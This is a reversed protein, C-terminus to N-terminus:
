YNVQVYSSPFIGARGNLEGSMWGNGSDEQTVNIVDGAFFPLDTQPQEGAFDYLATATGIIPVPQSYNNYDLYTEAPPTQGYNTPVASPVPFFQTLDPALPSQTLDQSYNLDDINQNSDSFGTENQGQIQVFTRRNNLNVLQGLEEPIQLSSAALAGWDFETKLRCGETYYEHQSNIFANTCDLVYCYRKRQILTIMKLRESKLGEDEKVKNTMTHLAEQLQSPNKKTLKKTQIELRTVEKNALSRFKKYDEAFKTVEQEDPKQIKQLPVIVEEM